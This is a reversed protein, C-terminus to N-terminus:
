AGEKTAKESIAQSLNSKEEKKTALL